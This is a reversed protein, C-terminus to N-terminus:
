KERMSELLLIMEGSKDIHCKRINLLEKQIKQYECKFLEHLNILGKRLIIERKLIFHWLLFILVINIVVLSIIQFTTFFMTTMSAMLIPISITIFFKLISLVLDINKVLQETEFKGLEINAIFIRDSKSDLKDLEKNTKEVLRDQEKIIKKLENKLKNEQNAM